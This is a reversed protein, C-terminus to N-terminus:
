QTSVWFGLRDGSPSPYWSTNRPQPLPKDVWVPYIVTGSHNRFDDNWRLHAEIIKGGVYEVNVWPTQDRLTALELLRLAIAASRQQGASGFTRLERGGLLLQLDDRHPGVLTIGRRLEQM